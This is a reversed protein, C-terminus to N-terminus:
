EKVEIEYWVTQYQPGIAIRCGGEAKEVPVPAKRGGRPDLAFCTTKAPDSPLTLAAPVGEALVTGSGWALRDRLAVSRESTKELVTGENETVGTAALLIDAPAGKEGFGTAERSTLSVTAWGLRTPGLALKVGGLDVTRDKPFGTFLKTNPTNVTWYAGGAVETNWALEGTDSALVKGEPKAVLAPDAGQKGSLDVATRNVLPLKGDFGASGISAGIAKSAVLRDFYAAYDVPAVVAQRAERVDGRLFIAACAPMHALVETRAIMSFFYTNRKPEFDPSHNYTYEFVGDWGQLAGYARLMPQGEAGYQNPFPHNYESVTYPKGEVRQGALGLICGLSNVMAENRIEWKTNVSPHCWYAHNDVYDLEAMLQPQTYGLQTGSIPARAKLENKVYSALGTWYARETDTLFRYFDRRAQPPVFGTSKVVPVSGEEIKSAEDFLPRLPTSFVPFHPFLWFSAPM